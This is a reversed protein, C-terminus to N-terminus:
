SAAVCASIAPTVTNANGETSAPTIASTGGAQVYNIGPSTLTRDYIAVVFGTPTSGSAPATGATSTCLYVVVDGDGNSASATTKIALGSGSLSSDTVGNLQSTLSTTTSYQPYASKIANYSEIKKAMNEAATKQATTHARNQIGNYAVITIAALIAIVVIVILLEVITFGKSKIQKTM